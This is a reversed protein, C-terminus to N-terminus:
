LGIIGIVGRIPDIEKGYVFNRVPINAGGYKATPMLSIISDEANRDEGM